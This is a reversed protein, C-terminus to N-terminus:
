DHGTATFLEPRNRRLAEIDLRAILYTGSVSRAPVEPAYILRMLRARTIKFERVASAATLTDTSSFLTSDKM